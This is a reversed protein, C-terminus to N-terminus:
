LPDATETPRPCYFTLGMRYGDDALLSVPEVGHEVRQGDFIFWSGDPTAYREAGLVLEGGEAMYRFVVLLNWAPYPIGRDRHTQLPHRHAQALRAMKIRAGHALLRGLEHLAPHFPVDLQLAVLRPGFAELLERRARELVAVDGVVGAAVVM